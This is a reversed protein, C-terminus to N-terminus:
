DMYRNKSIPAAECGLPAQLERSLPTLDFVARPIDISTLLLQHGYKYITKYKSREVDALCNQYSSQSLLIWKPNKERITNKAQDCNSVLWQRNTYFGIEAKYDGAGGYPQGGEIFLIPDQCTGYSQIIAEFKRLAPFMEPSLEIPLIMLLTPLVMGLSTIGILIKDSKKEIWNQFGALTLFALFPYMPLYYHDFKFRMASIVVLVTLTASLCLAVSPNKWKRNKFVLYISPILFLLWPWYRRKLAETFLFWDRSQSFSRGGIATGMVQRQFYDIALDWGGIWATLVWIFGGVGLAIGASQILLLLEKRNLKKTALLAILASPFVLLAVPSKMWIGLGAALGIWVPRRKVWAIFSLIIFFIMAHDLQFRAGYSIFPHATTLVLGSALGFIPSFLISGLEVTAAVSGVAFLSPLFRASWADAGFLRMFWGELYFLPFPHDNFGTQFHGNELSRIPLVPQIGHSTSDLALRAHVASDMAQLSQQYAKGMFVTAALCILAISAIRFLSKQSSLM